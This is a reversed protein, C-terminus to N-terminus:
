DDIPPTDDKALELDIANGVLRNSVAAIVAAGCFIVLVPAYLLIAGVLVLVLLLTVIFLPYRGLLALANRLASRLGPQELRPYLPLVIAQVILWALSIGLFFIQVMRAWQSEIAAYFNLNAWIILILGLNVLGWVYAQKWLKGAQRFFTDFKIGKGRSVDYMVLFLGFTVFPWPIILLTGVVWILNFLVLILLEEWLDAGAQRISTWILRM